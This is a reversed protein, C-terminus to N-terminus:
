ASIDVGSFALSPIQKSMCPRADNGAGLLSSWLSIFNGTMVLGRVPHLILGDKFLFGEIGYSFDGTASNSNGGNFGTILIGDGCLAMLEDRTSATGFQALCPRLADSLTPDMGLKGSIYTNIFYEKVIGAEIIPRNSAAVGESDYLKAGYRGPECPRDIISLGESFVKKGLSDLLFSNQQQLAFGDLAALVPNVLKSGVSPEVVVNYRGGPVDKPNMQALAKELAKSCVGSMDFGDRLSSEWWYGSYKAGDAGQVTMECGLDFSTDTQRARLGGSDLVLQDSVSDSYETEESIIKFDAHPCGGAKSSTKCGLPVEEAGAIKSYVSAGFLTALRKESTIEEYAPDYLGMELGTAATRVLRSPDPLRRFKDPALMRVTEVASKLFPELQERDLRNTSFIGYRGDAFISFTMARDASHTVKDLEGNLLMYLDMVSKGLKVRVGSAGAKLSTELAYEALQAEEPSIRGSFQEM